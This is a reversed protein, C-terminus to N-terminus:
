SKEKLMKEISLHRVDKGEVLYIVYECVNNAHAGTRELSRTSWMLDLVRSIARPDEMMNTIM